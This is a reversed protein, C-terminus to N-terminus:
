LLIYKTPSGDGHGGTQEEAIRTGVLEVDLFHEIEIQCPTGTSLVVCVEESRLSRHHCQRPGQTNKGADTKM